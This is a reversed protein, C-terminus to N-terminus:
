AVDVEIANRQCFNCGVHRSGEDTTNDGDGKKNKIVM